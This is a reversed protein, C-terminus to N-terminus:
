ALLAAVYVAVLYAWLLTFVFHVFTNFPQGRWLRPDYLWWQVVLRLAWFTAFGLLTFSALRTQELLTEPALLSLLGMGVLVFCVFITHVLFIQRNLLSLKELEERWHFRAPFHVHLLALAIQLAGAVRLHLELSL